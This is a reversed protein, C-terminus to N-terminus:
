HTLIVKNLLYLTYFYNKPKEETRMTVELVTDKLKSAFQAVNKREM